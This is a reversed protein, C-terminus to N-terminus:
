RASKEWGCLCISARICNEGPANVDPSAASGPCPSWRGILLPREHLLKALRSRVQREKAPLYGRHRM